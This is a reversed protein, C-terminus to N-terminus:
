MSLLSIFLNLTSPSNLKHTKLFIIFVTVFHCMIFTSKFALKVFTAYALAM